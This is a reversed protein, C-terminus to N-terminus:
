KGWSPTEKDLSSNHTEEARSAQQTGLHPRAVTELRGKLRRAYVFCIPEALRGSLPGTPLMDQQASDNVVSYLQSDPATSLQKRPDSTCLHIVFQCRTQPQM